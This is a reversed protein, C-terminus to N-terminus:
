ERQPYRLPDKIWKTYEKGYRSTIKESKGIEIWSVSDGDKKTRVTIEKTKRVIYIAEADDRGTIFAFHYAGKHYKLIEYYHDRVTVNDGGAWEGYSYTFREIFDKMKMDGLSGNVIDDENM